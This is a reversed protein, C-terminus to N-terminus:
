STWPSLSNRELLWCTSNCHDSIFSAMHGLVKISAPMLPTGRPEFSGPMLIFLCANTSLWFPDACLWTRYWIWISWDTLDRLPGTIVDLLEASGTGYKSHQSVPVTLVSGKVPYRGSVGFCSDGLFPASCEGLHPLCHSVLFVFSRFEYSCNSLNWIWFPSFKNMWNPLRLSTQYYVKFTKEQQCLPLSGKIWFSNSLLLLDTWWLTLPSVNYLM